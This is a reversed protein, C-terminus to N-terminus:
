INTLETDAINRYTLKDIYRLRLCEYKIPTLRSELISLVYGISIDIDEPPNECIYDDELIDYILNYPWDYKNNPNRAPM